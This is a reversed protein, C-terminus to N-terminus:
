ISYSSLLSTPVFPFWGRLSLIIFKAITFFYQLPFNQFALLISLIGYNLFLFNIFKIKNKIEEIILIVFIHYSFTSHHFLDHILLEILLRFVVKGLLLTYRRVKQM